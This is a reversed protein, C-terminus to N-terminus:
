WLAMFLASFSGSSSARGCRSVTERTEEAASHQAPPHPSHTIYHSRDRNGSGLARRAGRRREARTHKMYRRSRWGSRKKAWKPVLVNKSRYIYKSCNHTTGIYSLVSQWRKRVITSQLGTQTTNQHREWNYVAERGVEQIRRVTEKGTTM